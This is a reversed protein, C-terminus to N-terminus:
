RRPILEVAPAKVSAVVRSGPVLALDRVSPRTVLAALTLGACDVDVRVLAGAAALARVSGHLVNRASTPAAGSGGAVEASAAGEAVGGRPDPSLVVDQARIRALVPDGVAFPVDDQEGPGDAAQGVGTLVLPGADVHVLGDRVEVVRGAVVTGVGVLAAVDADAPHDFVEAPPGVQRVTGDVVVAVRDALTLAETRDHTVLLTPVGSDALIARLQARLHERTPADLASLPEDLLLLRPEPALARALAVRQREGGSLGAVSRGALGLAGVAGLAATVREARDRRRLRHLGFAVNGRVDLHPLLDGTQSVYGVRRRRTAVRHGREEWTESGVRVHGDTLRDLGAVARLLTTKGAGSPGILVTIEGPRLPLVLHADVVHRRVRVDLVDDGTV